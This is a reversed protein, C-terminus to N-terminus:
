YMRVNENILQRFLNVYSDQLRKADEEINESDEPIKNANYLNNLLSLDNDYKLLPSINYRGTNQTYLYWEKSIDNLEDLDVNFQYRGILYITYPAFLSLNAELMISSEITTLLQIYEVLSDYNLVRHIGNKIIDTVVDQYHWNESWRSIVDKNESNNITSFLREGYNRYTLIPYYYKLYGVHFSFGLLLLLVDYLNPKINYPYKKDKTRQNCTEIFNFLDSRLNIRAFDLFDNYNILELIFSIINISGDDNLTDLENLYEYYTTEPTLEIIKFEFDLIEYLKDLNQKIRLEDVVLEDNNEKLKKIYQKKTKELPQNFVKYVEIEEEDKRPKEYSLYSFEENIPNFLLFPINYQSYIKTLSDYSIVRLLSTLWYNGLLIVENETVLDDEKFFSENALLDKHGVIIPYLKNRNYLHEFLDKIMVDEMTYVINRTQLPLETPGHLKNNNNNLKINGSFILKDNDIKDIIEKTTYYKTTHM